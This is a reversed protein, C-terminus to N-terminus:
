RGTDALPLRIQARLGGTINALELRGNLLAILEATTSLGLGAGGTESSRSTELREFPQIMRAQEEDPIGPGDDEVSLIVEEDDRRVAIRARLGYRLANDVLNGLARELLVPDTQMSVPAASSVVADGGADRRQKAVDRALADVRVPTLSPSRAATLAFTLSHEILREMRRLDEGLRERAAEPLTDIRIRLATLPTRLDHALAALMRARDRGHDILRLRMEMMAQAMSRVERPGSTPLALSGNSGARRAAIELAVIPSAIWRALLWAPFCLVLAALVFSSVIRVQWARLAPDHPNGVLWRGDAQRVSATFLPLNTNVSLEADPGYSLVFGNPTTSVLVDRGDILMVSQAAGTAAGPAEAWVARVDSVPAGLAKALAVEILPSRRGQPPAEALSTGIVRSQATKLAHAMEAVTTRGREPAPWALILALSIAMSVGLVGLTLALIQRSISAPKM